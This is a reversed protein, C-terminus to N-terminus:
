SNIQHPESDDNCRLSANELKHPNFPIPLDVRCPPLVMGHDPIGFDIFLFCSAPEFCSFNGCLDIVHLFVQARCPSLLTKLAFGLRDCVGQSFALKDSLLSVLSLVESLPNTGHTHKGLSLVCIGIGSHDLPALSWM